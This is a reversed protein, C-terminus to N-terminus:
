LQPLGKQELTLLLIDNGIMFVLRSQVLLCM